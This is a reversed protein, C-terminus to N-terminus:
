PRALRMSVWERMKRDMSKMEVEKIVCVEGNEKRRVKYVVGFSGSGLKSV